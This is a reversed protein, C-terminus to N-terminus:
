YRSIQIIKMSVTPFTLGSQTLNVVQSRMSNPVYEQPEESELFDLIKQEASETDESLFAQFIDVSKRFTLTSVMAAYRLAQLEM